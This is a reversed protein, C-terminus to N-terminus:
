VRLVSLRPHLASCSPVINRESAETGFGSNQDSFKSGQVVQPVRGKGLLVNVTASIQEGYNDRNAITM